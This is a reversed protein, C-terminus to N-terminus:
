EEDFLFLIDDLLTEKREDITEFLVRARRAFDAIKAFLVKRTAQTYTHIPDLAVARQLASEAFPVAWDRLTSEWREDTATPRRAVDSELASLDTSGASVRRALDNHAQLEDYFIGCTPRLRGLAVDADTLHDSCSCACSQARM